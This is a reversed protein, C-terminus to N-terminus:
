DYNRDTPDPELVSIEYLVAISGSRLSRSKSVCRAGEYLLKFSVGLEHVYLTFHGTKDILSLLSYFRSWFQSLTSATVLVHIKFRKAEYYLEPDEEGEGTDVDVGNKDPYDHELRRKPVPPSLLDLYGGKVLLCGMTAYIDTGEIIWKGNMSVM